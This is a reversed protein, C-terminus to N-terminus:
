SMWAAGWSLSIKETGRLPSETHAAFAEHAVPWSLGCERAAQAVTRGEDAVLGAVHERLRATVRCRPPVAPLSETFSGARCPSETCYLRRKFWVLSVARAGFAVDKPRATVWEKVAASLTGCGPCAARAATSAVYVRLGGDLDDEVATVRVGDLGLFASAM